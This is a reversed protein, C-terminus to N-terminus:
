YSASEVAVDLCVAETTSRVYIRGGAVVPMSWCKGDLVKARARERYGSPAADMVVLEGADTLALIHRGVAIVNGPGFGAQEWKVEGTAADVCKAPGSSYEKFQFMGYLHGEVLVPTSWHNALPKDGPFRYVEEASWQDGDRRIRAAGAGVGYGASCYVLDGAVVPSAATSIRFPFAYRWLERGTEPDVSVLGSTVFFIAQPVGHLTAYTPTAHTMTEDFGKWRVEGTRKDVGLLSQDPGGGALLVVDGVVLPSAANQWTINRGAHDRMLDRRWVMEGSGVEWCQLVLRASLTYVRDGDLTPTSRPGDGGRNGPAGDNGGREPADLKISGLERTWLEAGTGADRVVLVERPVDDEERLELCFVRGGGVAFSSFGGTSPVRWREEPGHSPWEVRINGAAHGDHSPGRYWPWGDAQLIGQGGVLAGWLALACARTGLSGGMPLTNFRM